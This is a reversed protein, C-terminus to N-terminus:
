QRSFHLCRKESLLLLNCLIEVVLLYYINAQVQRIVFESLFVFSLIFFSKEKLLEETDTWTRRFVVKFTRECLSRALSRHLLAVLPFILVSYIEIYECQVRLKKTLRM